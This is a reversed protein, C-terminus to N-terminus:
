NGGDGSLAQQREYMPAGAPMKISDASPGDTRVPPAPPCPCRACERSGSSNFPVLQDIDLDTPTSVRYTAVVLVTHPGKRNFGDDVPFARM